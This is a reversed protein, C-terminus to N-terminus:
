HAPDEKRSAAILTRSEHTVQEIMGTEVIARMREALLAFHLTTATNAKSSLRGQTSDLDTYAQELAALQDLVKALSDQVEKIAHGGNEGVKLPPPSVALPTVFSGDIVGDETPAVNSEITAAHGVVLNPLKDSDLLRDTLDVGVCVISRTGTEPGDNILFRTWAITREHGNRTRLVLPVDRVLPSPHISSVFRPIQSFLRGPFLTAWFSKGLLEDRMFGTVRTVEPNMDLVLGDVTLRVVLIPLRQYLDM